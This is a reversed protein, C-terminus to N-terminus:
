EDNLEEKDLPLNEEDTEKAETAEKSKKSWISGVKWFILGTIITIGTLLYVGALLSILGLFVAIIVAIVKMIVSCGRLTTPSANRALQPAEYHKVDNDKTQGKSTGIFDSVGITTKNYVKNYVAKKPDNIIGMGKKGYVPNVAKKVTRKLKGTTRAKISKKISPKRIGMKM